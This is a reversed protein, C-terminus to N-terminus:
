PVRKRRRTSRTKSTSPKAARAELEDLLWRLVEADGPVLDFAVINSLERHMHSIALWVRQGGRKGKRLAVVAKAM